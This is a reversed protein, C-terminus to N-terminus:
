WLLMMVFVLIIIIIVFINNNSSILDENDGISSVSVAGVVTFGLRARWVLFPFFASVSGAAM